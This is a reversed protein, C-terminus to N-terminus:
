KYVSSPCTVQRHFEDYNVFKVGSKREHFEAHIAKQWLIAMTSHNFYVFLRNRGM